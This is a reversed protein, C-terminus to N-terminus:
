GVPEQRRAPGEVPRAVAPTECSAVGDIQGIVPQVTASAAPVRQGLGPALVLVELKDPELSVATPQDDTAPQFCWGLRGASTATGPSDRQRDQRAPPDARRGLLRRAPRCSRHAAHGGSRRHRVPRSRGDSEAPCRVRESLRSGTESQLLSSRLASNLTTQRGYTVLALAARTGPRIPPVGTLRQLTTDGCQLLGDRRPLPSPALVRGVNSVVVTALSRQRRLMWPVLGPVSSAFGLGGIFYLGLRGRRIAATETRITQLLSVPDHCDRLRRSLFTFALVNAAPMQHDERRRLNTPMTLRLWPNRREGLRLSWSRLTMFMERLLLDNLTADQRTAIERLPRLQGPDMVHSVFGQYGKPGELVAERPAPLRAPQRILLGAWLRATIWDDRLNRRYGAETLGFDGRLRLKENDLPPLPARALRGQVLFAYAILLDEVFRLAGM